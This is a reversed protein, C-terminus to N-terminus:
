EGDEARLDEDYPGPISLHPRDLEYAQEQRELLGRGGVRPEFPQSKRTENCGRQQMIVVEAYHCVRAPYGISPCAHQRLQEDALQNFCMLFWIRAQDIPKFHLFHGTFGPVAASAVSVFRRPRMM